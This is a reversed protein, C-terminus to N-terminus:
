SRSRRVFLGILGVGLLVLSAPEPVPVIPQVDQVMVVFDAYTSDDGTEWALVYDDVDWRGVGLNPTLQVSDGEGQYAVMRDEGGDNLPSDSYLYTPNDGANGGPVELYFGFVEGDWSTSNGEITLALTFNVFVNNSTDISLFVSQGPSAGGSILEVRDNGRYVGFANEGAAVEFVLTQIEANAPSIIDWFSDAADSLQENVVDVSSPGGVTIGDLLTQLGPPDSSSPDAIVVGQAPLAMLAMACVGLATLLKLKLIRGGRTM